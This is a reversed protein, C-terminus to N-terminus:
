YEMDFFPKIQNQSQELLYLGIEPNVLNRLINVKGETLDPTKTIKYKSLDFGYRKDSSRIHTIKNERDAFRRPKVYFNTWFYHRGLQITPRILPSYYPAVNEVVWKTKSSDTFYKLLIIEQYLSMDPYKIETSDKYKNSLIGTRRMDSHTPCPPSSWIFDFHEKRIIKRLYEHADEIIVTDRPFLDKYIYAIEENWEVAIITHEDGWLKRNGGIGAYLNLIKM